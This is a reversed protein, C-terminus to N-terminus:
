LMRRILDNIKEGRYGLAGGAQFGVKVGKRGFGKLPPNLRFYRKYKKREIEMSKYSCKKKSDTGRGQYEKGKKTLLERYTDEDIEGWTVYDKVKNIMGRNALSDEVVTCHNKRRLRLMFLTDIIKQPTKVSGRIRIVVLKKTVPENESKPKKTNVM